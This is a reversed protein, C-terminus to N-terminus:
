NGLRLDKGRRWTFLTFVGTLLILGIDLWFFGRIIVNQFNIGEQLLAVSLIYALGVLLVFIGEAFGVVKSQWAKILTDNLYNEWGAFPLKLEEGLTEGLRSKIYQAIQQFYMYQKLYILQLMISLIPGLLLAFQVGEVSVVQDSSTIQGKLLAVVPALLGLLILSYNIISEQFKLRFLIEERLASFEIAIHRPVDNM